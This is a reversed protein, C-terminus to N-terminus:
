QQGGLLPGHVAVPAAADRDREDIGIGVSDPHRVEAELRDIAMEIRQGVHDALAHEHGFGRVELLHPPCRRRRQRELRLARQGIELHDAERDGILAVVDVDQAQEIQRLDRQAGAVAPRVIREHEHAPDAREGIRLRDCREHVEDDDTLALLQDALQHLGIAVAVAVALRKQVAEHAELTDVHGLAMVDGVRGVAGDVLRPGVPARGRDDHLTPELLDVGEARDGGHLRGIGLVAVHRQELDAFAATAAASETEFPLDVPRYSM